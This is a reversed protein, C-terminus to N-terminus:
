EWDGKFPTRPALPEPTLDETSSPTPLEARQELHMKELLLTNDSSMEVYGAPPEASPKEKLVNESPLEVPDVALDGPLESVSASPEDSSGIEVVGSSKEDMGLRELAEMPQGDENLRTVVIVFKREDRKRERDERNSYLLASKRFAKSKQNPNKLASESLELHVFLGHDKFYDENWRRLVEGLGDSSPDLLGEKVRKEQMSRNM